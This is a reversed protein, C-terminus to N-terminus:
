FGLFDNLESASPPTMENDTVVKMVADKINWIYGEAIFDNPGRLREVTVVQGLYIKMDDVVYRHAEPSILVRDGPHISHAM